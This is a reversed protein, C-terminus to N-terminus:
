SIRNRVQANTRIQLQYRLINATVFPSRSECVVRWLENISMPDRKCRFHDCLIGQQNVRISIPCLVSLKVIPNLTERLYHNVTAIKRTQFCLCTKTRALIFSDTKIVDSHVPCDHPSGQVCDSTYRTPDQRVKSWCCMRTVLERHDTEVAGEV